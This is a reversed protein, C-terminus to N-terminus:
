LKKLVCCLSAMEINSPVTPRSKHLALESFGAVNANRLSAQFTFAMKVYGHYRKAGGASAALAEDFQPSLVSESCFMKSTKRTKPLETRVEVTEM